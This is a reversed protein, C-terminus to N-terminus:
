RTFVFESSNFIAWSLPRLGHERVLEISRKMEDQSPDRGFALRYALRVQADPDDGIEKKVREAFASALRLVFANNMLTLAQLPTTTVARRPTKVSPDPCDLVDLLPDKASNVNIRYISRRNFEPNDGDILLYFASNFTEIKFPRYAPCGAKLNLKGSVALMKDRVSEADLRRPAFRWLLRNESDLASATPDFRSSQRYTASLLIERHLKKMRGGDDRFAAALWDLLEPHTPREGNFGFDNPTRVLGEGFHHQWIRNAMVRWTLPNDRHGAWEAFKIRRRGEPDSDALGFEAAPGNIAAPPGPTVLEGKLDPDGRKLLWTPGPPRISAAYTMGPVLPAPQAARLKALETELRGLERRDSESLAALIQERSVREVGAKFSARVEATSLARDYLRAEEIAGRFFPSGGGTHRKGFLLRSSGAKYTVLKGGGGAVRYAEGYAEGNRYVAILGDASYVIAM